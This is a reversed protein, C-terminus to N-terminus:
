WCVTSGISMAVGKIQIPYLESLLLWLIPGLSIEFFAMYLVLSAVALTNGNPVQYSVALLASSAAMGVCGVLLLPKRGVRDMLLLAVVVFVLKAVGIYITQVHAQDPSSGAGEFIQPAFGNVANVGVWQQMLSGMVGIAIGWRIHPLALMAYKNSGGVVAVAACSERIGNLEEEVVAETATGRIRRLVIRAEEERGKSMLWRPSYPTIFIFAALLIAALPTATVFQAVWKGKFVTSAVYGLLIGTCICVQNVTVLSGRIAPPSLEAIYMPVTSSFIGIVAGTLVRGVAVQLYGGGGGLQYAPATTTIAVCAMYLVCCLILTVRRGLADQLLGAFPCVFTAGLALAGKLFGQQASDAKASSGM